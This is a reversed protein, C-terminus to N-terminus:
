GGAFGTGPIDSSKHILVSVGRSYATHTSHYSKGVWAYQLCSVNDRLLHTEQLAIIAPYFKCLGSSIMTSKLPDNVGRVNWSVIPTSVM